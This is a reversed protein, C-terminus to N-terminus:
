PNLYKIFSEFRNDLSEFDSKNIFISAIDYNYRELAQIIRESNTCTILIHINTKEEKLEKWLTLITGTNEEILRSIESLLYHKPKTSIVIIFTNSYLISTEGIKKIVDTSKLYGIYNYDKNVVPLISLQNEAIIKIAEFIHTDLVIFIKLMEHRVFQLSNKLDEMNIIVSENIIGLLENNGNVVPLQYTKYEDMIALINIGEDEIHLPFIDKKIIDRIM